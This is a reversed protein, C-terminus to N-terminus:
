PCNPWPNMREGRQWKAYQIHGEVLNLYPQRLYANAANPPDPHYIQLLGYFYLITVGDRSLETGVVEPRGSSECGILALAWACGWTFENSCALVEWSVKELQHQTPVPLLPVGVTVVEQSSDVKEGAPGLGLLYAFSLYSLGEDLERGEELDLVTSTITATGSISSPVVQRTVGHQGGLLAMVVTVM